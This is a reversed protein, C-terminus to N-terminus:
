SPFLFLHVVHLANRSRNHVKITPLGEALWSSTEFSETSVLRQYLNKPIYTGTRFLFALRAQKEPQIDPESGDDVDSDGNDATMPGTTLKRRKKSTKYEGSESWEDSQRYTKTLCGEEDVEVYHKKVKSDYKWDKRHHKVVLPFRLKSAKFSMDALEVYLRLWQRGLRGAELAEERTLWLGAHYLISCMRNISRVAWLIRCFYADSAIVDEMSTLWDELFSHYVRTDDHKSWSADPQVQYSTLGIRESCFGGSHPMKNSKSKKAWARLHQDVIQIKENKSSGDVLALVEALCSAIFLKGCGGHYNHWIDPKFMTEPCSPQHFLRLVSPREFWPEPAEVQSWQSNLNFDEWPGGADTGAHCLWCVGVPGPGKGKKKDRAKREARLWYRTFNGTKALYPLDGKM